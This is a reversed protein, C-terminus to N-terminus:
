LTTLVPAIVGVRDLRAETQELASKDAREMVNALLM